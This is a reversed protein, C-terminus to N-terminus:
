KISQTQCLMKKPSRYKILKTISSILEETTDIDIRELIGVAVFVAGSVSPYKNTVQHIMNETELMSETLSLPKCAFKITIYNALIARLLRLDAITLHTTKHIFKTTNFYSFIM